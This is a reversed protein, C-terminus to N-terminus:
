ILQTEKRYESPTCQMVRVFARNFSRISGFGCAYAVETINMNDSALLKLAHSIRISVLLDVFSMNLAKLACRVKSESLHLKECATALTMEELAHESVYEIVSRLVASGDGAAVMPVGGALYASLLAYYLSRIEYLHYGSEERTLVSQIYGVLERSVVFKRNQEALLRYTIYFGEALTYSFMLVPARCDESPLFKHLRYPLIMAAEGPKLLVRSDDYLVTLSGELVYIFEMEPNIHMECQLNEPGRILLYEGIGRM